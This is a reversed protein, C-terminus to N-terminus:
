SVTLRGRMVTFHGPFTCLFTYTGPALEAVLTVEEGPAALATAALFGESPLWQKDVSSGLAARGVADAEGEPVIVVNHTMAAVTGNNKFRVRVLGASATLEKVDYAMNNGDSGLSLETAVEQGTDKVAASGYVGPEAAAAAAAPEPKPEPEPAAAPRPAAPPPPPPDGDCGALILSLVSVTVIM